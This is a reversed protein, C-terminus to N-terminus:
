SRLPCCFNSDAAVMFPKSSCNGPIVKELYHILHDLCIKTCPTICHNEPSKKEYCGVQQRPLELADDTDHFSGITGRRVREQEPPMEGAGNWNLQLATIRRGARGLLM